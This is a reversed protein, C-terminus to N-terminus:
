KVVKKSMRRAPLGELPYSGDSFAPNPLQLIRLVHEMSAGSDKQEENKSNVNHEDELAQRIPEPQSEM